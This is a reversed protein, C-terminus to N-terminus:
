WGHTGEHVHILEPLALRGIHHLEDLTDARPLETVLVGDHAHTAGSAGLLGAGDSVLGLGTVGDETDADTTTAALTGSVATDGGTLGLGSTDEADLQVLVVTGDSLLTKTALDTVGTDEVAVPHVLVGGEHPVLDDGDVGHVLGDTVIGADVPDDGGDVLVALGAAEGGGSALVTTEAVLAVLGGLEAGGHTSGPAAVVTHDEVALTLASRLSPLAMSSHQEIIKVLRNWQWRHVTLQSIFGVLDREGENSMKM